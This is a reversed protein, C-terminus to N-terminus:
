RYEGERSPYGFPYFNPSSYPTLIALAAPMNGERFASLAEKYASLMDDLALKSANLGATNDISSRDDQIKYGGTVSLRKYNSQSAIKAAGLAILLVFAGPAGNTTPDSTISPTDYNVTYPGLTISTWQALQTDVISTSMAILKKLQDDTWTYASSDLDNLYYRVLSVITTDWAM